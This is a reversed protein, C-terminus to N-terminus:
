LHCSEEVLGLVWKVADVICPTNWGVVEQAKEELELPINEVGYPRIIVLPKKLKQSLEVVEELYDPYLSYLGSLLIVVEANELQKKIDERSSKGLVASNEWQFDYARDLREKFRLNEQDDERIQTIFLKYTKSDMEDEFM